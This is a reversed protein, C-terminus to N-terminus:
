IVSQCCFTLKEYHTKHRKSIGFTFNLCANERKKLTEENMMKKTCKM